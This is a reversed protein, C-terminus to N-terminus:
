FGPVEMQLESDASEVDGLIEVESYKMLLSRQYDKSLDFNIVYLSKLQTQNDIMKKTNTASTCNRLSLQTLNTLYDPFQKLSRCDDIRLIKLQTLSRLDPLTEIELFQLTLEELNMLKSLKALDEKKSCVFTKIMAYDEGVQKLDRVELNSVETDYVIEKTKYNIVYHRKTMSNEFSILDGKIAMVDDEIKQITDQISADYVYKGANVNKTFFTLQFYHDNIPYVSTPMIGKIIPISLEKGESDNLHVKWSKKPVAENYGIYASKSTRYGDMEPVSSIIKGKTNIFYYESERYKKEGKPKIFELLATGGELSSIRTLPKGPFLEQIDLAIKGSRDIFYANYISHYGDKEKYSKVLSLGNYFSSVDKINKISEPILDKEHGLDNIYRWGKKTVYVAALGNNFAKANSYGNMDFVVNGEKDMFHYRRRVNFRDNPDMFEGVHYGEQCPTITRYNKSFSKIKVGKLNFMALERKEYDIALINGCTGIDIEAMGQVWGSDHGGDLSNIISYEPPLEVVVNGNQDILKNPSSLIPLLDQIQAMSSISHVLVLAFFLIRKM